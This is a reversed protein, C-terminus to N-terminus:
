TKGYYRNKCVKFGYDKRIDISYKRANYYFEVLFRILALKIVIKPIIDSKM